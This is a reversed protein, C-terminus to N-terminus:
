RLGRPAGGVNPRRRAAKTAVGELEKIVVDSLVVEAAASNEKLHMLPATGPIFLINPARRLAL